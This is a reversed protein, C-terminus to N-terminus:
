KLAECRKQCHDLFRTWERPDLFPNEGGARLKEAKGDTDNNWCHNGLFVDVRERRLKEISALYDARCGEYYGDYSPVLSNSGAGGFMGARYTEGGERVDFFLSITGKTHGPTHLFRIATDGLRLVDGDRLLIDPTFIDREIVYPADYEGICTKAGTLHAFGATAATHDTHWHTNVIYRIQEPRFGLEWISELVLYATAAYGTDILILGEGTDILHSSAQYTGVFYVNGVIRFPRMRGEYNKKLKKVPYM